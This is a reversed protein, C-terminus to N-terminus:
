VNVCLGCETPFESRGVQQCAVTEDMGNVDILWLIREQCTYGAANTSLVESTCTQPVGCDISIEPVLVAATQNSIVVDAPEEVRPRTAFYHLTNTRSHGNGGASDFASDPIFRAQETAADAHGVSALMALQLVSWGHTTCSADAVCSDALPQYMEQLWDQNADRNEAITTLPLLQIGYILYPANGFWTTFQVMTSWLIGVVHHQYGPPYIEASDDDNRRVHWYYDTSRIETAAAVLGADQIGRSIESNTAEGVEIWALM